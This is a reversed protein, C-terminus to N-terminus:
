PEGGDGGNLTASPGESEAAGAGQAGTTTRARGRCAATELASLQLEANKGTAWGQGEHDQKSRYIELCSIAVFAMALLCRAVGHLHRSCLLMEQGGSHGAGRYWFQLCRWFSLHRHRLGGRRGSNLWGCDESCVGYSMPDHSYGVGQLWGKSREGAVKHM